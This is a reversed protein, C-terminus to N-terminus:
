SDSSDSPDYQSTPPSGPRHQPDSNGEESEVGRRQGRKADLLRMLERSLQLVKERDREQQIQDNLRKIREDDSLDM